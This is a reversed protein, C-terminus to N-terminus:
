GTVPRTIARIPLTAGKQPRALRRNELYQKLWGGLETTRRHQADRMIQDLERFQPSTNKQSVDTGYIVSM